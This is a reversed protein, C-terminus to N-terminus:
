DRVVKWGKGMYEIASLVLAKYDCGPPRCHCGVQPKIALDQALNAFTILQFPDSSERLIPRRCVWTWRLAAKIAAHLSLTSHEQSHPDIWPQTTTRNM